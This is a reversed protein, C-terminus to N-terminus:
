VRRKRSLELISQNMWHTNKYKSHNIFFFVLMGIILGVMAGVYVDQFFHQVLYIRSIGIMLAILFLIAGRGKKRAIMFSVIGYLAFASMTHGSPFSTKGVNLSVGEVFNITEDIGLEELFIIPRYHGFIRKAIFSVISVLIAVLLIGLGEKLKRNLFFLFFFLYLLGEGMKTFYKFFINLFDTRRESFFIISDPKEIQILIVSGVIFFLLCPFLFFINARFFKIM